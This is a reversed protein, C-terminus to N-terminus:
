IICEKCFDFNKKDELSKKTGVKLAELYTDFRGYYFKNKCVTCICKISFYNEHVVVPFRNINNMEEITLKEYKM